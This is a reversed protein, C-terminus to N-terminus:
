NRRAWWFLAAIKRWDALDPPTMFPAQGHENLRKLQSKLVAVPAFVVRVDAPLLAIAQSAENLHEAAKERLMACGKCMAPSSKGALYENEGAGTAAFVSWPLVIQGRRATLPLARLHGVLAHAVGLHGAAQAAGADRGGNVIIAALQYLISSTEGAYGEFANFDVMPDNYLDFRRAALLRQLPLVPLEFRKLAALLEAALPNERAESARKGELVDVWWQLRIEGAGPESIRERVQAIEAAFAYLAQVAPRNEGSLLLTANFRDRDHRKLHASVFGANEPM